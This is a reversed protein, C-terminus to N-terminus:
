SASLFGGSAEAVHTQDGGAIENPLLPTLKPATYPKKRIFNPISNFERPDVESFYQKKIPLNISM